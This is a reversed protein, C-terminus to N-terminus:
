FGKSFISSTGFILRFIFSHDDIGVSVNWMLLKGRAWRVLTVGDPRESVIRSVPGQYIPYRCLRILDKVAHHQATRRSSVTSGTLMLWHDLTVSAHFPVCVLLALQLAVAFRVTESDLRVGCSAVPLALLWDWSVSILAAKFAARAAKFASHSPDFAQKLWCATVCAEQATWSPQKGSFGFLCSYRSRFCM